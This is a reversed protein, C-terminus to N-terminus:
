VKNEVFLFCTSNRRTLVLSTSSSDLKGSKELKKAFKKQTISSSRRLSKLFLCIKTNDNKIDNLIWAMKQARQSLNHLTTRESTSLIDRSQLEKIFEDPYADKILEERM